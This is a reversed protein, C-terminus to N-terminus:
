QENKDMVPCFPYRSSLTGLLAFTEAKCGNFCRDLVPCSGCEKISTIEERWKKLVTSNQWLSRFDHELAKEGRMDDYSLVLDCPCIRGDSTIVCSLYAASCLPKVMKKEDFKQTKQMLSLGAEIPKYYVKIKLDEKQMMQNITNLLIIKEHTTLAIDKMYTAKGVLAMPIVKVGDVPTKNFFTILNPIDFLNYRTAVTNIWVECSLDYKIKLLENLNKRVTELQCGPRLTNHLEERLSDIDVQIYLQGDYRRIINRINQITERPKPFAGNTLIQVRYFHAAVANELINCFDERLLPEGGSLVIESVGAKVLSDLIDAWEKSTLEKRKTYPTADASCYICRGHCRETLALIVVYPVSPVDLYGLRALSLLFEPIDQSDDWLNKIEDFVTNQHM